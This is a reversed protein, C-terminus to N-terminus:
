KTFECTAQWSKLLRELRELREGIEALAPGHKVDIRGSQAAHCQGLLGGLSRLTHPVDGTTNSAAAALVLEERPKARKSRVDRRLDRRAMPAHSVVNDSNGTLLGRDLGSGASTAAKPSRNGSTEPVAQRSSPRSRRLGIGSTRREGPSPALWKAVDAM